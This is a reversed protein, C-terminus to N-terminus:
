VSILHDVQHASRAYTGDHAVTGAICSEMTFKENLFNLSHEIEWVNNVEDAVGDLVYYLEFMEFLCGTDHATRDCLKVLGM